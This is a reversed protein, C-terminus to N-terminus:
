ALQSLDRVEVVENQNEPSLLDLEDGDRGSLIQDSLPFNALVMAYPIFFLLM